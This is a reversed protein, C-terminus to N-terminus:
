GTPWALEGGVVADNGLIAWAPGAFRIGGPEAAGRAAELGSVLTPAITIICFDVLRCSLFAQIVRAGGEVMLTKISHDCRLQELLAPLELAGSETQPIQLLTAMRVAIQSEAPRGSATAIIPRMPGNLVAADPPTRLRSDLIVPRPDPSFGKRTTLRPNDALVTGIGVLIGDHLSRLRHTMRLSAQGSLKLPQGRVAAISGDVSQAYTLTVRPRRDPFEARNLRQFILELGESM